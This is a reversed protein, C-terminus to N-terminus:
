HTIKTLNLKAQELVAEAETLAKKAKIVEQKADKLHALKKRSFFGCTTKAIIAVAEKKVREINDILHRTQELQATPYSIYFKRTFAPHAIIKVGKAQLLHAYDTLDDNVIQLTLQSRGKQLEVQQKILLQCCDKIQQFIPSLNSNRKTANVLAAELQFTYRRHFLVWQVNDQQEIIVGSLKKVLTEASPLSANIPRIDFDYPTALRVCHTSFEKTKTRKQWHILAAEYDPVQTSVPQSLHENHMFSLMEPLKYLTQNKSDVPIVEINPLCQKVLKELQKPAFVALMDKSHFTHSTKLEIISLDQVRFPLFTDVRRGKARDGSVGDDHRYRSVVTGAKFDVTNSDNPDRLEHKIKEKKSPAKLVFVLSNLLRQQVENLFIPSQDNSSSLRKDQFSWQRELSIGFIGCFEEYTLDKITREIAAQDLDNLNVYNVCLNDQELNTQSISTVCEDNLLKGSCLGKQRISQLTQILKAQHMQEVYKEVDKASLIPM